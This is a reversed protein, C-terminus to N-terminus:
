SGHNEAPNGMTSDTRGHFSAMRSMKGFTQWESCVKGVVRNQEDRVDPFRGSTVVNEFSSMYNFVPFTLNRPRQQASHERSLSLIM